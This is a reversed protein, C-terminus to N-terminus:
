DTQLPLDAGTLGESSAHLTVAGPTGAKSRLIVLALGNFAKVQKAQFPDHSTPDGNDVAIIEAPGSVDFRVLHSTQPVMLGSQDAIKVTVYSLDQGDAKIKTRDAQLTLQSAPGTTKMVDEAWKQGNKYAIVKLEGPEYVVDNWRLRYEYPGKKKRGLSKGNLFLEAEDGSTYVHVPTVQGVRDPWNWHPLIHAMPLEPRWKSQYLYFRDKKFGALDIIGFYSSRSPVQIKGLTKLEEEAKAREAPNHYNLLNSTDSDYPTPEGIYDFGTWVFEGMVYSDQDQAKFETDPITAWRPAYLDYSSVQFDSKGDAQNDSVPFFYEGRSSITSATESGYLPKDPNAAHFKAYLMPKYNYGFVDMTKQYGNFGSAPNDCASTAPRTPDEDHAISVLEAATVLGEPSRQEPIENGVSWMIVCPHNRDRRILARLDKEHWDEFVVSYANQTKGIKWCDAFEDMVVMGMRDCLDLLEPAPPNHSTRIANCGMEKLIELQRQLARVNIADGLAGLDQHDCVGNLKVHKGNLFFGEDKDFKTTRIGFTTKCRDVVKNNELVSTVAVYLDPTEISWLKPNPVEVPTEQILNDGSQGAAALKTAGIAAGMPQGDAGAEFIQTVVNVGSSAANQVRVAVKVTASTEEVTPTTVFVGWHAIHTPETSVLWVNRYIGAGPYWRSSEPPNELRVALVNDGAQIYPTLDLEWSAYGFPWGGVFKGNLWVMSYSMAGDFDVFYRKSKADGPVQFHKRYWGIGAWPLKGTSGPLDQRFPGEIAWDHPVNLQRWGSDDFGPRSYPEDAGANEDPKMESVTGTKVLDSGTPKDFDKVKRFDLKGKAEDPDGKQFRWDADLSIRERPSNEAQVCFTPLALAATIVTARVCRRLTLYHPSRM